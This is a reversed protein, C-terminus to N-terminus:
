KTDLNVVVEEREGDRLITFRMSETLDRHFLLEFGNEEVSQGDLEIILDNVKLGAKRAPSNGEVQTIKAGAFELKNLQALSSTFNTYEIGLRPRVIEQGELYSRLAPDLSEAIVIKGGTDAVMGVVRGNLNLVPGGPLIM